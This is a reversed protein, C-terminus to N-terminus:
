RKAELARLGLARLCPGAPMLSFLATSAAVSLLAPSWLLYGAPRPELRLGHALRLWFALGLAAVLALSSRLLPSDLDVAGRLAGLASAIALYGSASAVWPDASLAARACALAFAALMLRQAPARGLLLFLLVLSLDPVARGLVGSRLLEGQLAAAWSAWVAFLVWALRVRARGKM